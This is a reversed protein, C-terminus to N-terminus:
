AVKRLRRKHERRSRGVGNVCLMLIYDQRLATIRELPSQSLLANLRRNVIGPRDVQLGAVLSQNSKGGDPKRVGFLGCASNEAYGYVSEKARRVHVM